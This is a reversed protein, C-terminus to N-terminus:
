SGKGVIRKLRSPVHQLIIEPFSLGLALIRGGLYDLSLEHKAEFISKLDDLDTFRASQNRLSYLKSVVLDEVTLCPVPGFGFDVQNGQARVCAEEVWPLTPLLLDLGIAQTDEDPPRGAVIQVPTSKKKIAFMPGGDLQAKRLPHPEMDFFRIIADATKESAEPGFIAVDVDNTMRPAQRYLSAVLGGALAFPLKRKTLEGVVRQLLGTLSM